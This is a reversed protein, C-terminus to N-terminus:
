EALLPEVFRELVDELESESSLDHHVQDPPNAVDEVLIVECEGSRWLLVEGGKNSTRLVLSQGPRDATPESLIVEVGLAELESRRAQTWRELSELFVPDTHCPSPATAQELTSALRLAVFCSLSTPLPSRRRRLTRSHEGFTTMPVRVCSETTEM